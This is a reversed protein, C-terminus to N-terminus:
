NPVSISQTGPTFCFNDDMRTGCQNFQNCIGQCQVGGCFAVNSTASLCNTNPANLCTAGGSYVTCPGSCLSGTATSCYIVAAVFPSAGLNEIPEGIFTLNADTTSIWNKVQAATVLGSPLGFSVVALALSVLVQFCM